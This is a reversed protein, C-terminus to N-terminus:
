WKGNIPVNPWIEWNRACLYVKKQMYALFFLFIALFIYSPLIYSTFNIYSPLVLAGTLIRKNKFPRNDAAYIPFGAFRYIMCGEYM